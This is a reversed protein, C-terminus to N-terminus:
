CPSVSLLGAKVQKLDIPNGCVELAKAPTLPKTKFMELFEGHL